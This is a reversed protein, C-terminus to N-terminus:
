VQITVFIARDSSSLHAELFSGPTFLSPRIGQVVFRLRRAAGPLGSPAAAEVFGLGPGGKEPGEEYDRMFAQVMDREWAAWAPPELPNGTLLPEQKELRDTACDPPDSYYPALTRLLQQYTLEVESLVVASAHATTAAGADDMPSEQSQQAKWRLVPVRFLRWLLLGLPLHESEITTAAAAETTTASLSLAPAASVRHADYQLYGSESRGSAGRYAFPFGIRILYAVHPRPTLLGRLLQQYEALLYPSAFAISTPHGGRPSASSPYGGKGASAGSDGGLSLSGYRQPQLQEHAPADFPRYLALGVAAQLASEAERQYIAYNGYLVTYAAKHVQKVEMRIHEELRDYNIYLPVTRALSSEKTLSHIHFNLELPESMISFLHSQLLAARSPSSPSSTSSASLYSAREERLCETVYDKVAGAPYLWSLPTDRVSFWVQTTEPHLAAAYPRFLQLLDRVIALLMTTRPLVFAAPAPRDTPHLVDGDALYVVVPVGGIYEKQSRM